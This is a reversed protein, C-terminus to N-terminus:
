EGYVREIAAEWQAREENSSYCLMLAPALDPFRVGSCEAAELAALRPCEKEGSPAPGRPPAKNTQALLNCVM